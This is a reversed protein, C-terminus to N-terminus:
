VLPVAASTISRAAALSAHKTAESSLKAAHAAARAVMEERTLPKDGDEPEEKGEELIAARIASSQVMLRLNGTPHSPGFDGARFKADSDPTAMGPPKAKRLSAVPTSLGPVGGLPWAADRFMESPRRPGLGPSLGPSKPGPGSSALKDPKGGPFLTKYQQLLSAALFEILGLFQPLNGVTPGAKMSQVVTPDLFMTPLDIGDADGDTRPSVDAEAGEAPAKGTRGAAGTPSVLTKPLTGAAGPSGIGSVDHDPASSQAVATLAAARGIAEEASSLARDGGVKVFTSQVFPLMSKFLKLLAKKRGNYEEVSAQLQQEMTGLSQYAELTRNAHERRDYISHKAYDAFTKLERELEETEAVLDAIATVKSFKQDEHSSFFEVMAQVDETGMAKSLAEWEAQLGEAKEAKTAKKAAAVSRRTAALSRSGGNRAGRAARFGAGGSGGTAGHAAGGDGDSDSATFAGVSPSATMEREDEAIIVSLADWEVQMEARAQDLEVKIDLMTNQAGDRAEYLQEVTARNQAVQRKTSQLEAEMKAFLDRFVVSERRASDIRRRVAANADSAANRKETVRRLEVEVKALQREVIFKTALVANRRGLPHQGKDNLFYRDYSGLSAKQADHAKLAQAHRADLEAKAGQLSALEAQLRRKENDLSVLDSGVQPLVIPAPGGPARRM